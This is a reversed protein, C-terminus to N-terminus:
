AGTHGGNTVQHAALLCPSSAGEDPRVFYLDVTKVQSCASAEMSCGLVPLFPLVTYFTCWQLSHYGQQCIFYKTFLEFFTVSLMKWLDDRKGEDTEANHCTEGRQVSCEACVVNLGWGWRWSCCWCCLVACCARRRGTGDTLQRYTERAEQDKIYISRLYFVLKNVKSIFLM